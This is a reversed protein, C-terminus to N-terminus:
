RPIEMMKIVSQQDYVTYYITTGDATASLSSQLPWPKKALTFVPTLRNTSFNYFEIRPMPEADSNLLYLGARTIGWFGWYGIQPSDAVVLSEIGGSAPVRWIGAEYFRTYYVTQGDFSEFPEFGGEKTVQLEEGSDLRRKWVQWSGTRMSAFYLSKGDRSWSSEINDYPGDTIQRQERGESNIVFLQRRNSVVGNFSIWRGDPSWRPTSAYSDVHTLQLPNEGDVGSTWIQGNGSRDSRWAIRTGDPSPQASMESLQTRISERNRLLQGGASALGARWITAGEVITSESYVLRRGDSSFSGIAPYSTERQIPGGEAAVRWLAPLMSRTSAFVIWKGDPAWMLDSFTWLIDAFCRGEVTLPHPPGGALPVTYVEGQCPAAPSATFAVTGGDPSLSFQFVTDFANRPGSHTLCRKKGSALSFIVLDFSGAEPCHDIILIDQGNSLWAITSPEDYPCGVDTLKREAGGLATVAFLGDNRGGCRSFAIQNGDPSWALAGITNDTSRTIRLPM